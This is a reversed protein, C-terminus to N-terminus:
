KLLFVCGIGCLLSAGTHPRGGGALVLSVLWVQGARISAAASSPFAQAPGAGQELVCLGEGWLLWPFILWLKCRLGRTELAESDRRRRGETSSRM